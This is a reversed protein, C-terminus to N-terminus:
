AALAYNEDNAVIHKCNYKRPARGRPICPEAKIGVDFGPRGRIRQTLGNDWLVTRPTSYPPTDAAKKRSTPSVHSAQRPDHILTSRWKAPTKLGFHESGGRAAIRPTPRRSRPDPAASADVAPHSLRHERRSLITKKCALRRNFQSNPIPTSPGSSAQAM